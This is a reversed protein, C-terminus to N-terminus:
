EYSNLIQLFEEEIQLFEEKTLTDEKIIYTTDNIKKITDYGIVFSGDELTYAQPAGKEGYIEQMMQYTTGMRDMLSEEYKDDIEEWFDKSNFFNIKDEFDTILRSNEFDNLRQLDYQGSEKGNNYIDEIIDCYLMMIDRYTSQVDIKEIEKALMEERAEFDSKDPQDQCSYMSLVLAAIALTRFVNKM